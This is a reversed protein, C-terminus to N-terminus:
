STECRLDRLFDAAIKLRMRLIKMSQLPFLKCFPQLFEPSRCFKSFGKCYSELHQNQAFFFHHKRAFKIFPEVDDFECKMLKSLYNLAIKDKPPGQIQKVGFPLLPEYFYFNQPMISLIQGFYSSGSRWTSIVISRIPVGGTELTLNRLSLNGNIFKYNSM